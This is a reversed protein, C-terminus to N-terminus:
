GSSSADPPSAQKIAWLKRPPSPAIEFEDEGLHRVVLGDATRYQRNDGDGIVHIDHAFNNSDVAIFTTMHKESM